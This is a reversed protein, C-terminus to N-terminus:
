KKRLILTKIKEGEWKIEDVDNINNKTTKLYNLYADIKTPKDYDKIAGEEAIIILVNSKESTFMELAETILQNAAADDSAKAIGDFYRRLRNEPKAAEKAKEEAIRIEEKEKKINEEVQKILSQLEADDSNMAKMEALIKEKEEISKTCNDSLLEKLTAKAQVLKTDVKETNDTDDVVVPKKSKCGIPGVMLAALALLVLSNKILTFSKLNRRTKM